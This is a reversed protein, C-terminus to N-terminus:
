ELGLKNKLINYEEELAQMICSKTEVEYKYLVEYIDAGANLLVNDKCIKEFIKVSNVIDSKIAEIFIKNKDSKFKFKDKDSMIKYTKLEFENCLIEKEKFYMDKFSESIITFEDMGFLKIQIKLENTLNINEM